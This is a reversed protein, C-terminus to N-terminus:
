KETCDFHVHRVTNAKMFVNRDAGGIPQLIFLLFLFFSFFFERLFMSWSSLTAEM